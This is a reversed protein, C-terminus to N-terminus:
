GNVVYFVGGSWNGPTQELVVEDGKGSRVDVSSLANIQRVKIRPGAATQTSSIYVVQPLSDGSETEDERRAYTADTLFTASVLGGPRQIDSSTLAGQLTHYNMINGVESSSLSSVSAGNRQRYNSFAENSPVLVTQRQESTSINTLLSAAVDPFSSLLNNFNSLQPYRATANLLSQAQVIEIAAFSALLISYRM